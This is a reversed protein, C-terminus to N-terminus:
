TSKMILSENCKFGEELRLGGTRGPVETVRAGAQLALHTRTGEGGGAVLEGPRTVQVHVSLHGAPTGRAVSAPPTSLTVGAVKAVGSDQAAGASPTLLFKVYLWDALWGTM